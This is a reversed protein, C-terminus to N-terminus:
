RDPSSQNRDQHPQSRLTFLHLEAPVNLRMPIKSTGFGCSVFLRPSVAGTTRQNSDNYWGDSFSRVSVTKLLPGFLPLVIQGGHTHGTLILDVATDGKFKRVIIPDHALLLTFMDGTAGHESLALELNARGTRPDDVGALRIISGDKEELLVAENVLVRVREEQLMVELPRIDEDYDHNGYVMYLPAISSLKRINSRCRELPVRKERLDGGVLVLDIRGAAKCQQIIADPIGRRHIDSIFLLRTGDFSEPLRALAVEQCDLQYNYAERIMYLIIIVAAATLIFLIIVMM